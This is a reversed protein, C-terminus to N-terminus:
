RLALATPTLCYRQRQDPTCPETAAADVAAAVTAVAALVIEV